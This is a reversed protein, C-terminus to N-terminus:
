SGAAFRLKQKTLEYPHDGGEGDAKGLFSRLPRYGMTGSRDKGSWVRVLQRETCGLPKDQHNRISPMLQGCKQLVQQPHQKSERWRVVLGAACEGISAAPKEMGSPQRTSCKPIALQDPEACRAVPFQIVKNM